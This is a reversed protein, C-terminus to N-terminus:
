DTRAGVVIKGKGTLAAAQPKGGLVEIGTGVPTEERTGGPFDRRGPTATTEVNNREVYQKLPNIDFTKMKRNIEIQYKNGGKCGKIEFPGKWQMLLKSHDSPLLVLVKDEM